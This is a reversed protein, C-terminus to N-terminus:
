QGKGIKKNLVVVVDIYFTKNINKKLKKSLVWLMNSQVQLHIFVYLAINQKIIKMILTINYLSTASFGMAM